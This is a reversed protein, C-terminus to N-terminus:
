GTRARIRDLVDEWPIGDTGQRDIGDLRRDLEERQGQTLPVAESEAALSGWIGNLLNLREEATLNAINLHRKSMTRDAEQYGTGLAVAAM